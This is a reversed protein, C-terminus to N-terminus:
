SALESRVELAADDTLLADEGQLIVPYAEAIAVRRGALGFLARQGASIEEPPNKLAHQWLAKAARAIEAEQM